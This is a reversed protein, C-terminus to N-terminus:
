SGGNTSNNYSGGLVTIESVFDAICFVFSIRQAQSNVPSSLFNNRNPKTM